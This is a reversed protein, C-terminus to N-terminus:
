LLGFHTKVDQIPQLVVTLLLAKAASNSGGSVVTLVDNALLLNLTSGAANTLVMGSSGFLSAGFTGPGSVGFDAPTNTTGTALIWTTLGTGAIFRTVSLQYTPAGSIGFMAVQAEDITSSWPVLAVQLTVGTAVAGAVYPIAVRKETTDKTRNVIGM